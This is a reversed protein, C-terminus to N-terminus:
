DSAKRWRTIRRPWSSAGPTARSRWEARLIASVAQCLWAPPDGGIDFRVVGETSIEVGGQWREQGVSLEARYRTASESRAELHLNLRGGSM